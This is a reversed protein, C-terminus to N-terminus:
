PQLEPLLVQAQYRAWDQPSFFDGSSLGELSYVTGPCTPGSDDLSKLLALIPWAGLHHSCLIRNAGDVKSSGGEQEARLTLWAEVPDIALELSVVFGPTEDDSLRVVSSLTRLGKAAFDAQARLARQPFFGADLLHARLVDFATECVAATRPHDIALSHKDSIM